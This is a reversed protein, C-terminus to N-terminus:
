GAARMYWPISRTGFAALGSGLALPIGFFAM